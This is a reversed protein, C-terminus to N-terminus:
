KKMKQKEVISKEKLNRMKGQKIADVNGIERKKEM